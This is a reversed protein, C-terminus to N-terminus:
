FSRMQDERINEIELHNMVLQLEGDSMDDTTEEMIEKADKGIALISGILALAGFILCGTRM